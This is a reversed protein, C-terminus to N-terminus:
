GFQPIPIGLIRRRKRRKTAKKRKTKKVKRKKAMHHGWDLFDSGSKIVSAM